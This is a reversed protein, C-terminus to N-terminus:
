RRSRRIATSLAVAGILVVGNIVPIWTIPVGGVILALAVWVVFVGGILTGPVTFRGDSFVVTSLFCAAFAPLLFSTANDPAASGQSAALVVGAMSALFGGLVFSKMVQRRVKVGALLAASRNSGLAQLHRGSTTYNILIWLILGVVLLFFIMWSVGAIWKPLRLVFVALAALVVLLAIKAGLWRGNTWSAPRVRDLGFFFTAGLLLVAVWIIPAPAKSSFAGFSTFLDPLQPGDPSPGVLTGGSYVASLGTCVGGTGLTAIFANVRFREVLIGNILGVTVGLLLGILLVVPFPWGQQVRLGVVLYTGLTAVGAVSLDFQGPILTVLVALGLLLIPVNQHMDLLRADVNLFASGLWVGFVAFLVLFVVVTVSSEILKRHVLRAHVAAASPAAAVPPPTTAEPSDSAAATSRTDSDTM